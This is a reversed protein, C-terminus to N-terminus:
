VALVFLDKFHSNLPYPSESEVFIGMNDKGPFWWKIDRFYLPELRSIRPIKDVLGNLKKADEERNYPLSALVLHFFYWWLM